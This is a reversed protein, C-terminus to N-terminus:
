SEEEAPAFYDDTWVFAGVSRWVVDLEFVRPDGSDRRPRVAEGSKPRELYVTYYSSEDADPYMTISEAGDQCYAIMHHLRAWESIEFRITQILNEDRRVTYAAPVGGAATKSGGETPSDLDWPRSPIAMTWDVEDGGTGYVFRLKRPSIM